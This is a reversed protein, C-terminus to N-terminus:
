GWGELGELGEQAGQGGILMSGTFNGSPVPVGPALEPLSQRSLQRSLHRSLHSVFDCGSDCGDGTLGINLSTYSLFALLENRSLM